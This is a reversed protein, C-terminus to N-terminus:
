EYRGTLSKKIKKAIKWGIIRAVINLIKGNGLQINAGGLRRIELEAKKCLKKHDPYFQFAWRQCTNACALRSDADDRKELITQIGGKLSKFASLM